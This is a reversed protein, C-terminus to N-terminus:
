KQLNNSYYLDIITCFEEPVGEIYFPGNNLTFNTSEAQGIPQCLMNAIVSYNTSDGEALGMGNAAYYLGYNASSGSFAWLAPPSLCAILM